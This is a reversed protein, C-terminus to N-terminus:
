NLVRIPNETLNSEFMTLLNKTDSIKTVQVKNNLIAGAMLIDLFNEEISQMQGVEMSKSVLFSVAGSDNTFNYSV